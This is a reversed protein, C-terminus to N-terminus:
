KTQKPKFASWNLQLDDTLISDNPVSRGGTDYCCEDSSPTQSCNEWDIYAMEPVSQASSLFVLRKYGEEKEYKEKVYDQVNKM